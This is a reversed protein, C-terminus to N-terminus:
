PFIKCNKQSPLVLTFNEFSSINFRLVVIARYTETQGFRIVADVTAYVFDQFLLTQIETSTFDNTIPYQFAKPNIKTEEFLEKLGEHRFEVHFMQRIREKHVMEASKKPKALFSLNKALHKSRLLLQCITELHCELMLELLPIDEDSLLSIESCLCQM